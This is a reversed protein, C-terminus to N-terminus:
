SDLGDISHGEPMLFPWPSSESGPEIPVEILSPADEAIAQELAKRLMEPTKALYAAVGFSEALKVFSPNTLDQGILRGHFRTEQDRLVNGFGRNNFVVAVVNIKHHVATALEQVGFMFGGDGSVSVVPKEPNAIKVGLATNYGFGLCDQYGANVYTRPEYVPFGYRAAFGIQAIEEVFFGDRPLVQRIASLYDMQPQVTQIDRWLKAKTAKFEDERSARTQIVKRLANLLLRTGLKADTVIAADSQRRAMENPDIDIRVVKFSEPGSQWRIYALEMRTGIGILLDTSLWHRYGAACSFGYPLHESIVGRGGRHAVVPAQLIKALELIEEGAERAGSGVMIMPNRAKKLLGVARAISEPDPEPPAMPEVHAIPGLEATRGFIDWPTEVAVPGIRGSRLQRFAETMVAPAEQPDSIRAAWKTLLKLTGLQDPLEHLIGHGRGIEHSFIEGTICLVPENAGYATALAAGSNLVGPGPVVSYAGVRGSSRAYGYAMYGAGQEHRTNILHLKDRKDYLADFFDYTHAGPIGFLTDVGNSILSDAIVQGTTVLPVM